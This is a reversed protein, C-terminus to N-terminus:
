SSVVRGIANAFLDIVQPQRDTTKARDFFVRSCQEVIILALDYVSRVEDKRAAKLRIRLSKHVASPDPKNRGWRRPFSTIITDSFKFNALKVLLQKFNECWSNTSFPDMLDLLAFESEDLIWMWLQDVMVVRPVKRIDEKCQECVINKDQQNKKLKEKECWHHMHEPVPATGRYVVQDRDRKQTSKLTWYYSQDLTRRPHLLPRDASLYKCILKEDTYYNMAESLAAARLLLRGVHKRGEPTPVHEASASVQPRSNNTGTEMNNDMQRRNTQTAPNNTYVKFAVDTMEYLKDGRVKKIATAAKARRRDTEWHLYPM